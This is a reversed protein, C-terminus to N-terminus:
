ETDVEPLDARKALEDVTHEVHRDYAEGSLWDSFRTRLPPEPAADTGLFSAARPDDTWTGADLMAAAEGPSCDETEAVVRTAVTRIEEEVTERRRIEWWEAPRPSDLTGDANEVADDIDDGTEGRSGYTAAEPRGVAVADTQSEWGTGYLRVAGLVVAVLALLFVTARNAFPVVYPRLGALSTPLFGVVVAGVLSAVGLATLARRKPFTDRDVIPLRM